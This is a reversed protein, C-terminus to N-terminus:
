ADKWVDADIWLGADDWSGSDVVFLGTPPAGGGARNGSILSIFLGLAFAM